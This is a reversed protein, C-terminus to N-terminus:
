ARVDKRRLIWPNEQLYDVTLEVSERITHAPAWGTARIRATALYIFPNDGVWGRDGGTYTVEPSVGLRDCIWCASEDVSCYDEVGLNYVQYGGERELLGIVASVCDAVHLYSKRQKGDGLITLRTPDDLLQRLFDVVHGHTYRPGLVSVFRFATTTMACGEAYAALLGEGALKSAGYLSTQVPFPCDEPTPIVSTEGYVSGTSSFLVRSVGASRAAELVNHTVIINQKLDIEPSKWGFRVDANAALHIVAGAGRFAPALKAADELLDLTLLQFGPQSEASALFLRSGTSFNDIGVVEHGSALLADTLNSGIFGAAGTVVVKM